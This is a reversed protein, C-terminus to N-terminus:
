ANVVRVCICEGKLMPCSDVINLNLFDVSYVCLDKWKLLLLVLIANLLM